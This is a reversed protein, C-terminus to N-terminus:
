NGSLNNDYHNCRCNSCFLLYYSIYVIVAVLIIIPNYYQTIQALHVRHTSTTKEVLYTNGFHLLSYVIARMHM